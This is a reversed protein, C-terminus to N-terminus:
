FDLTEPPPLAKSKPKPRSKTPRVAKQRGRGFSVGGFRSPMTRPAIIEDGDDPEADDDRALDDAWPPPAKLWSELVSEDADKPLLRRFRELATLKPKPKV